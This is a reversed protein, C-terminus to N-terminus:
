ITIVVVVIAVKLQKLEIEARMRPTGTLSPILEILENVRHAMKSLMRREREQYLFRPDLKAPGVSTQSAYQQTPMPQYTPRSQMQHPPVSGPPGMFPAPM